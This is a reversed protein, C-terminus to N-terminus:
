LRIDTCNDFSAVNLVVQFYDLTPYDCQQALIYHKLQILAINRIM